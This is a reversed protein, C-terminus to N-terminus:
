PQAEEHSIPCDDSLEQQVYVYKAAHYRKEVTFSRWNGIAILNAGYNEADDYSGLLPGHHPVDNYAPDGKARYGFALEVPGLDLEITVKPLDATM